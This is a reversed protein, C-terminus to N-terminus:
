IFFRNMQLLSQTIINVCFFLFEQCINIQKNIAFLLFVLSLNSIDESDIISVGSSQFYEVSKELTEVPVYKM